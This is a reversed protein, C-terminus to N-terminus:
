SIVRYKLLVTGRENLREMTELALPVDIKQAPVLGDGRGFLYPELTTWVRDVLGATLFGLNLQAGGVLLIKKYGRKVLRDYLVQPSDNTFELQDRVAVSLYPEPDRTCVVRLLHPTLQMMTKAVEYTKRGMVIADHCSLLSNFFQYDEKSTWDHIKSQHWKTTKGDLSMVMVM